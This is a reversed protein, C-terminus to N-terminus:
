QGKSTANKITEAIKVLNPKSIALNYGQLVIKVDEENAPLLGTLKNIQNEKLRPIDLKTLEEALKVVDKHALKVVQDIYDLTKQARFNLEKEDKQIKHLIEKVDSLSIASESILSKMSNGEFASSPHM